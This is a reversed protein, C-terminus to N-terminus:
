LMFTTCIIETDNNSLINFRSSNQFGVKCEKIFEAAPNRVILKEFKVKKRKQSTSINNESVQNNQSNDLDNEFSKRQKKYVTKEKSERSSETSLKSSDFHKRKNKLEVHKKSKQKLGEETKDLRTLTQYEM